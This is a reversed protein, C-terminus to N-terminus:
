LFIRQQHIAKDLVGNEENSDIYQIESLIQSKKEEM